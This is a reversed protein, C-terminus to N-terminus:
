IIVSIRTETGQKNRKYNIQRFPGAEAKKEQQTERKNIKEYNSKFFFLHIQPKSKDSWSSNIPGQRLM